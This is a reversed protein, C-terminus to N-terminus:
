GFRSACRGIEELAYDKLLNVVCRGLWAWPLGSFIVEGYSRTDRREPASPFIKGLGGGISITWRNASDVLAGKGRINLFM